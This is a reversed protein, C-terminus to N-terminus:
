APYYARSLYRSMLFNALLQPPTVIVKALFAAQGQTIELALQPAGYQVLRVLFGMFVSAVVIVGCTYFFYILTKLFSRGPTSDFILFRSVTFVLLAAVSSSVFNAISIHIGFGQSLLLLLACDLLWGAGSLLGFKLFSSM